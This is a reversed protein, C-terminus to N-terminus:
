LLPMRVQVRVLFVPTLNGPTVTVGDSYIAGPTPNSGVIKQNVTLQEVLQAVGIFITLTSLNSSDVERKWLPREACVSSFESLDHYKREMRKDKCAFSLRM